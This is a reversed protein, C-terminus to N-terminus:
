KGDLPLFNKAHLCFIVLSALLPIFAVIDLVISSFSRRIKLDQIICYSGFVALPIPIILLISARVLNTEGFMGTIGIPDFFLWFVVLMPIGIAKWPHVRQRM